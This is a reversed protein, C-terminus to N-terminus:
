RQRKQIWMHIAADLSLRPECGIILGLNDGSFVPEQLGCARETLCMSKVVM